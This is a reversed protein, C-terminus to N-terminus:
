AMIWLSDNATCGLLGGSSSLYSATLTSLPPCLFPLAPDVETEQLFAWGSLRVSPSSRVPLLPSFHFGGPWAGGEFESGRGM